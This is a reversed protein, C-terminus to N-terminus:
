GGRMMVRIADVMQKRKEPDDLAHRLKDRLQAVRRQTRLTEDDLIAVPADQVAQQSSSSNKAAAKKNKGSKPTDNKMAAGTAASRHLTRQLSGHVTEDKRDLHLLLRPEHHVLLDGAM